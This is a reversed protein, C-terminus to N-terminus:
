FQKPVWNCKLIEYRKDFTNDSENFFEKKPSMFKELIKASYLNKTDVDATIKEMELVDFGFSILGEVMETAFGQRWFKERLRYGIEDEQDNNKVFACLGIFENGDKIQIAWVKTSSLNQNTEIRDKLHQDSEERSMVTRPISNMVNPNGMMDFYDIADMEKLHRIILRNTEFIKM